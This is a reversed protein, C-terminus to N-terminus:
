TTYRWLDHRTEASLTLTPSYSIASGNKEVIGCLSGRLAYLLGGKCYRYDAAGDVYLHEGDCDFRDAAPGDYETYGASTRLFAIRDIWLDGSTADATLQTTASGAGYTRRTPCVIRGLNLWKYATSSVAAADDDDAEDEHITSDWLVGAGSTMRARVLLAYEGEPFETVVLNTVADNGNSIKWAAGGYANADAASAGGVWSQDNADILWGTWDDYEEEILGLFLQTVDALSVTWVLPTEYEGGMGALDIIGPLATPAANVLTQTVGYAYPECAIELTPRLSGLRGFERRTPVAAGPSPYTRITVGQSQASDQVTIVSPRALLRNIASLKAAAADAASPYSGADEKIVIPLSIMRAQGRHATVVRPVGYSGQGVTVLEQAVRGWDADERVHLTVTDSGSGLVVSLGM